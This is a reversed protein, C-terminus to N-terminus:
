NWSSVLKLALNNHLKIKKNNFIFAFLPKLPTNKFFSKLLTWYVTLDYLFCGITCM